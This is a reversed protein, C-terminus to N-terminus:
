ENITGKLFRVFKDAWDERRNSRLLEKYKLKVEQMDVQILPPLQKALDAENESIFLQSSSLIDKFVPIDSALIKRSSVMGELLVLGQAEFRSPIVLVDIDNLVDTPRDCWGFFLVYDDLGLSSVLVELGSLDPGDGVIIYKYDYGAKHLLSAARVFVDQGKDALSVRGLVGVLLSDGKWSLLAERKTYNQPELKAFAPTPLVVVNTECSLRTTLYRKAYNSVTITNSYLPFVYYDAIWDRFVNMTQKLLSKTKIFDSFRFPNHMWNVYPIDMVRACRLSIMGNEIGPHNIVIYDPKIEAMKKKISKYDHYQMFNMVINYRVATSGVITNVDSMDKLGDRLPQNRDSIMCSIKIDNNKSLLDILQLMAVQAGGFYPSDDCFVIHM